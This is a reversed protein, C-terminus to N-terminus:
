MEAFGTATVGLRSARRPPMAADAAAAAATHWGSAASPPSICSTRPSGQPSGREQPLREAERGGSGMAHGSGLSDSSPSGPAVAVGAEAEGELASTTASAYSRSHRRSASNAAALLIQHALQNKMSPTAQVRPPTGPAGGATAARHTRAHPGSHSARERLEEPEGPESAHIV